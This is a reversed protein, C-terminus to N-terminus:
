NGEGMGEPGLCVLPVNIVEWEEFSFLRKFRNILSDPNPLLKRKVRNFERPSLSGIYRCLSAWDKPDIGEPLECWVGTEDISPESFLIGQSIAM